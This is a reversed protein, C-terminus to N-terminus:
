IGFSMLAPVMIILLVLAFLLMMPMMLKTGALEGESRIQRRREELAQIREGELLAAIGYSGKKLNQELLSGLKLYMHQECRKGFELYAQGESIGTNMAKIAASMEELAYHIQGSKKKQIQYDEVIRIWAGRIPMGARILILLKSIMEPYDAKMQRERKTYQEKVSAYQRYLLIFFVTFILLLLGAETSYDSRQVYQVKKGNFVDPLKFTGDELSNEQATVLYSQLSGSSDSEYRVITIPIEFIRSYQEYSMTLYLSLETKGVKAQELLIKGDETILAYDSPRWAIDIVDWETVTGFDLNSRIEQFSVNDGKVKTKLVDYYAEFQKQIEDESYVQADLKLHIDEQSGDELNACFSYEQPSDGYEPRTLVYSNILETCEGAFLATNGVILMLLIGAVILGYREAQYERWERSIDKKVYIQQMRRYEKLESLKETPHIRCIVNLYFYYGSSKMWRNLFNGECFYKKGWRASAAIYFVILVIGIGTILIM